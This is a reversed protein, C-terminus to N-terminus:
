CLPQLIVSYESNRGIVRLPRGKASSFTLHRQRWEPVWFYLLSQNTSRISTSTHKLQEPSKAAYELDHQRQQNHGGQAPPPLQPQGGDWHPNKQNQGLYTCQSISTGLMFTATSWAEGHWATAGQSDESQCGTLVCRWPQSFGGFCRCVSCSAWARLLWQQGSPPSSCIQCLPQAAALTGVATTETCSLRPCIFSRKMGWSLLVVRRRHKM